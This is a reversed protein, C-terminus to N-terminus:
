PESGGPTAPKHGRIVFYAWLARPLREAIRELRALLAQVEPRAGLRPRGYRYHLLVRSLPMPQREEVSRVECGLARLEAAIGSSTSALMGREASIAVATLAILPNRGNPEVVALAGGPRLVRLAEALVARRSPVHHLLDRILVADFSDDAFPVRAADARLCSAGTAQAAFRAKAHAFDVAYITPRADDPRRRSGRLLHVLNAGEGCGLELLRTAPGPAAGDDIEGSLGDFLGDLLRAESAAIYPAETQWRFHTPDAERWFARQEDDRITPRPVPFRLM